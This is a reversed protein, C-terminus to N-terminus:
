GCRIESEVTRLDYAKAKILKNVYHRGSNTLEKVCLAAKLHTLVEIEGKLKAERLRLHQLSETSTKRELTASM